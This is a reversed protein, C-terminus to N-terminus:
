PQLEMKLALYDLLDRVTLVGALRGDQVVLMRSRGSQRMRTLAQLAGTDPTVTLEPTLPVAVDGIRRHPWDVRPLLNLQETAIAGVLRGNDQVPYLKHHYRFVYDDVFQAITLDPPVTVPGVTMFRRVPEGELARRVLVQQYATDAARRLFLGILLSWVGGLLDGFLLRVGGMTMLAVSFAAGVRTATRTARLLDGSRKWLIARLVRGGDLPFAPLLNFTALLLNIGGLYALVTALPAPAGWGAGLTGCALLAIGIGVSAVPGAVTMALEAKPNPPEAGM